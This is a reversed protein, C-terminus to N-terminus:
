RGIEREKEKDRERAAFGVWGSISSSSRLILLRCSFATSHFETCCFFFLSYLLTFSLLFFLGRVRFGLECEVM